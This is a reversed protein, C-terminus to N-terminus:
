KKKKVRNPKAKPKIKINKDSKTIGGTQYIDWFWGFFLVAIVTLISSIVQGENQIIIQTALIVLSILLPIYKNIKIRSYVYKKALVFGGLIIAVMAIFYLISFLIDM